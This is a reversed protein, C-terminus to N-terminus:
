DNEDKVRELFIQKDFKGNKLAKNSMAQQVQTISISSSKMFATLVEQLDAIEEIVDQKEKEHYAEVLELM